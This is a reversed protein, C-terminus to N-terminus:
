EIFIEIQEDDTDSMSEFVRGQAGSRIQELLYEEAQTIKGM